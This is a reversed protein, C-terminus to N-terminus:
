YLPDQWHEPILINKSDLFRSIGLKSVLLVWRKAGIIHLHEKNKAIKKDRWPM